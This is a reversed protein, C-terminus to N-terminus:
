IWVARWLDEVVDDVDYVISRLCEPLAIEDGFRPDRAGLLLSEACNPSKRGFVEFRPLLREGIRGVRM